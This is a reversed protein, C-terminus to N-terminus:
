QMLDLLGKGIATLRINNLKEIDSGFTNKEKAYECELVGFSVMPDVVLRVIVSRLTSQVFTQDQTPWRLGSQAILRDAFVDCSVNEVVSLEALCALTQERFGAPLGDALGSVPFAIVWDVQAWWNVLLFFVQVPEPLQPFLQGESTVKWTQAQGGTVMTGAFALHHVFVLPWVEDETRIKYTHGGVIEELKPPHVFRECIGKIAKLPLNGTAPTGVTRNKELYDLFTLVDCRLPLSALVDTQEKSLNKVWATLRETVEKEKAKFSTAFEDMEDEPEPQSRTTKGGHAPKIAQLSENVDTLDFAEPDFDEGLWELMDDHEANDPNAIAELMDAYGWIGGVDEPPCARKGTVCLPYPVDKEAPVIKEVLITHEWGDGFDYLYSFKSKERLDFIDLYYRHENRTGLDGTEDDEPDGYTENDITFMHLHSNTWGMAIQLIEHLQSLRIHGPVLIRRWIPPKADNLNVKLQYVTKRTPM